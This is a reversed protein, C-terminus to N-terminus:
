LKASSNTPIQPLIVCSPDEQNQKTTKQKSANIRSCFCQPNRM